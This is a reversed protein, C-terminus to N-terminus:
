ASRSRSGDNVVALLADAAQALTDADCGATSVRVAPDSRQRFRSGSRIAFGRHQMGAVVEAEDAVPVWVNLGSRGSAAVGGAALRDIFLRRREGYVVAATELVEDISASRLLETVTQQLLHSVWGAGLSQRGSVRAVTTPDGVLAAVRLDPGLSKAMSRIVVWRKATQPITPHYPQGAIHGAHDDEIILLDPYGALIASLESARAEDLAAGTPNQARPTMIVAAPGAALADALQDPRVGYRDVSMPVSRLNMATVLDIISTYAPDEVAVRDGPRLHAALTREIGDLAGGVVALNREAEIGEAVLPGLDPSLDEVFCAALEPAVAARGYLVQESSIRGLAPGLDPLYSVDPNGSALDILGDPIRQDVSRAISPREAVFTGRRGDSYVYGRDQLQRYATAVTNPALGFENAAARVPALRAGPPLLGDVIRRELEVM